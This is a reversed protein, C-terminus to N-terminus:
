YNNKNNKRIIRPPDGHVVNYDEINKRIKTGTGITCNSGVKVGNEIIVNPSIWCNDGLDVRGCIISGVTITTNLGIKSNHGIHVLDDIKVGDCIITDDITGKDITSGSGIWVNNGIVLRGTHSFHIIENKDRSFNFGEGGIVSNSKIICNKGIITVGHVVVNNLIKTGSSIKVNNGIYCNAGIFINDELVANKEIISTPHISSTFEDEIFFNNLIKQFDFRPNDSIIYSHKFNKDNIEKDVIFLLSKNNSFKISQINKKETLNFYKNIVATFFIVSNDKVNEISSFTNIINDNGYLKKNLFNALHSSRIPLNKKIFM